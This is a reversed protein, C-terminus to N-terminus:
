AQGWLRTQCKSGAPLHLVLLTVECLNFVTNEVEADEVEDGNGELVDLVDYFFPQM